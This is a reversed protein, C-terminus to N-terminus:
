KASFAARSSTWRTNRSNQAVCSQAGGPPRGIGAFTVAVGGGDDGRHGYNASTIMGAGLIAIRWAIRSSLIRCDFPPSRPGVTPTPDRSLCSSDIRADRTRRPLPCPTRRDEQCSRRRGSASPPVLLSVDEQAVGFLMPEQRDHERVSALCDPQDTRSCRSTAFPSLIFFVLFDVPTAATTPASSM